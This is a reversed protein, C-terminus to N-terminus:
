RFSRPFNFRNALDSPYTHTYIYILIYICWLIYMIYMIYVYYICMIYAYLICMIYVYYIVIYVCLINM